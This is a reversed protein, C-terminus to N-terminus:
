ELARHLELILFERRADARGFGFFREGSEYLLTLRVEVVDRFWFRARSLFLGSIRVQIELRQIFKASRERAWVTDSQPNSRDPHFLLQRSDHFELVNIGSFYNM